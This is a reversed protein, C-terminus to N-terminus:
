LEARIDGLLEALLVTQLSNDSTVLDAHLSVLHLVISPADSTLTVATNQM